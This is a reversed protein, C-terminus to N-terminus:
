DKTYWIQATATRDSLDKGSLFIIQTTSAYVTCYDTDSYWFPLSDSFLDSTSQGVCRLMQTATAGHNVRKIAENPLVGCDVLKTYVAKGMWRETTRYEVGLTMPPNIYEWPQWVGRSSYRRLEFGQLGGSVPYITQVITVDSRYSDVRLIATQGVPSEDERLRYWGNKTIDDIDVSPSNYYSETGLGFGAPAAGIEAPTIASAVKSPSTPTGVTVGMIKRNM